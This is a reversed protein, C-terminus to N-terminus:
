YMELRLLTFLRDIGNSVKEKDQEYKCYSVVSLYGAAALLSRKSPLGFVRGWLWFTPITNFTSRLSASLGKLHDTAKDLEAVTDANTAMSVVTNEMLARALFVHHAIQGIIKRLEQIPEVVIRTFAYLLLGGILTASATLLIKVTESM